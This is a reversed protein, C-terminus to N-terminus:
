RPRPAHDPADLALGAATVSGRELARVLETLDAGSPARTPRRAAVMRRAFWEGRDTSFDDYRVEGGSSTAHVIRERGAYIAVHSIRSGREAFFVLDGPRLSSVRPEVRQGVGAQQRSTRPLRVDHRAFVYQVFGSCDFGTAPSTGGYVYKTGVYRRATPLVQSGVAAGPLSAAPIASSPLAEGIHRGHRRRPRRRGHDPRSGGGFDISLGGRLESAAAGAALASGRDRDFITRRRVEGFLSAPGFFAVALGGGWSWHTLADTDPDNAAPTQMGAGLFIYPRLSAGPQAGLVVDGDVAWLPDAAPDSDVLAAFSSVAGGVRLGVGQASVGLTAGYLWPAGVDPGRGAHLAISGQARLSPPALLALAILSALTAPRAVASVLTRSVLVEPQDVPDAFARRRGGPAGRAATGL